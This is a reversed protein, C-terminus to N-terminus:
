CVNYPISTQQTEAKWKKIAGLAKQMSADGGRRILNALLHTRWKSDGGGRSQRNRLETYVARDIEIVEWKPTSNSRGLHVLYKIATGITSDDIRVDRVVEAVQAYQLYNELFKKDESLEEAFRSIIRQLKSCM